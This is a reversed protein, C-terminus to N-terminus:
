SWGVRSSRCAVSSALAATMIESGPYSASVPTLPNPAFLHHSAIIDATTRWHVFEDHFTFQVPWIMVKALYAAIGLGTVLVIREARTPAASVLRAAAPGVIALVGLWFAAEAWSSHGARAFAGALAM